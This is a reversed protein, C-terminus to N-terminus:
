YARVGEGLSYSALSYSIPGEASLGMVLSLISLFVTLAMFLALSIGLFLFSAWPRLHLIHKKNNPLPHLFRM